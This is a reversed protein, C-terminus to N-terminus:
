KHGPGTELFVFSNGDPDRVFVLKGNRDPMAGADKLQNAAQRADPVPFLLQPQAGPLAPRM